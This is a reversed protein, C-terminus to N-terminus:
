FWLPSAGSCKFTMKWTSTCVNVSSKGVARVGSNGMWAVPGAGRRPDQALDLEYGILSPRFIINNQHMASLPFTQKFPISDVTAKSAGSAADTDMITPIVAIYIHGKPVFDNEADGIMADQRVEVELDVLEVMAFLTRLIKVKACQALPIAARFAGTTINFGHEVVFTTSGPDLLGTSITNENM